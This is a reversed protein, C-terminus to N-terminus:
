STPTTHPITNLLVLQANKRTVAEVVRGEEDSFAGRSTRPNGDAPDCLGDVPPVGTPNISVIFILPRLLLRVVELYKEEM